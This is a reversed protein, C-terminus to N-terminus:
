TTYETNIRVYEATIDNTLVTAEGSGRRLDVVIEIERERMAARAKELDGTGPAGGECLKEGGIWVDIANPDLTIGSAGLAAVVRGWNPDAGALACRLLLSGAVSGAARRAEKTNAAGRASIAVVRTAGEADEVIQRALSRCVEVVAAELSAPDVPGAAGNALAIVADNTSRCGDVDIMHFSLGAARQLAEALNGRDSEADTAIFALMTAMSPSIMGAGKALGVVTADGAAAQAVKPRTDTTMMALALQPLGNVSLAATATGIGALVRSLPLPVGIVGTSAVLVDAERIGLAAGTAKATARADALGRSGTCANANGSNVVIARAAGRRLHRKALIVPAAQVRNTTFVGAAACPRESVLLGLDSAGSRKLGAAVGAARFGRPLQSIM